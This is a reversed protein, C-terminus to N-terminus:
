WQLGKQWNTLFFEIQFSSKQLGEEWTMQIFVEQFHNFSSASCIYLPPLTHLSVPAIFFFGGNIYLLILYNWITLEENGCNTALITKCWNLHFPVWKSFVEGDFYGQLSRGKAKFLITTSPDQQM